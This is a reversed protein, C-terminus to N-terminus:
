SNLESYLYQTLSRCHKSSLLFTDDGSVHFFINSSAYNQFETGHMYKDLYTGVLCVANRQFM